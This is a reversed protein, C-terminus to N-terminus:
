APKCLTKSIEMAMPMVPPGAPDVASHFSHCVYKHQASPSNKCRCDHREGTTGNLQGSFFLGGIRKTELTANCQHAPLYDYEVAYAPRLM